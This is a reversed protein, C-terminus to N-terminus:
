SLLRRLARSVKDGCAKSPKKRNLGPIKALEQAAVRAGGLSRLTAIRRGTPVHTLNWGRSCKWPRHIAVCGYVDKPEITERLGGGEPGVAIQITKPTRQKM